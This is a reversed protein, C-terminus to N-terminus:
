SHLLLTRQASLASFFMVKEDCKIIKVTQHM